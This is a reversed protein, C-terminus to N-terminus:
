ILPAAATVDVYDGTGLPLTIEIRIDQDVELLVFQGIKRFGKAEGEVRYKGPLLGAVTFEGRSDTTVSRKEGTEENVVTISASSVAAKAPDKTVGSIVGRVTQAPAFSVLIFLAIAFRIKVFM